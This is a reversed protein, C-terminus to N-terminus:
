VPNTFNNATAGSMQTTAGVTVSGNAVYTAVLHTVDTGFPVTAAVSSGNIMGVVGAGLGPNQAAAFGFETLVPPDVRRADDGCAALGALALWVLSTLAVRTSNM